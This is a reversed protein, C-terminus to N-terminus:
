ELHTGRFSNPAYSTLTHFLITMCFLSNTCTMNYSVVHTEAQTSSSKYLAKSSLLLIFAGLFSSICTIIYTVTNKGQASNTPSVEFLHIHLLLHGLM